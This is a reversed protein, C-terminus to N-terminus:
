PNGTAKPLTLKGGTPLPSTLVPTAPWVAGFSPTKPSNAVPKAVSPASKASSTPPPAQTTKATATPAAKKSTTAPVQTTPASASRAPKAGPQETEEDIEVTPPPDAKREAPHETRTVVFLAVAAAGLVLLTVLAPVLWRRRPKARAVGVSAVPMRPPEPAAPPATSATPDVSAAGTAVNAATVISAGIARKAANPVTEISAVNAVNAVNAVAIGPVTPAPEARPSEFSPGANARGPVTPPEADPARTPEERGFAVGDPRTTTDADREARDAREAWAAARSPLPAGTRAARVDDRMAGADPYRNVRQFRLARDVIEAVPERVGAHVSRIAPAPTTAVRTLLEHGKADHVRRGTLARFMTAGLAYLDARGDLDSAGRAQEPPMYSLTGLM